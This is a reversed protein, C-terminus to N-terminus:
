PLMKEPLIGLCLYHIFRLAAIINDVFMTNNSSNNNNNNNNVLM